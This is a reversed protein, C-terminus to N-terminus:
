QTLTRESKSKAIVDEASAGGSTTDIDTVDKIMRIVKAGTYYTHQLNGTLVIKTNTTVSAVAHCEQWGERGSIPAQLYVFASAGTTYSNGLATTMTIKGLEYDIDEITLNENASGDRVTVPDGTRFGGIQTPDVYIIKQASSANATLLAPYQDDVVLVYQGAVFGATAAIGIETQGAKAVANPLNAGIDFQVGALSGNTITVAETGVTDDAYTVDVALVWDVGGIGGTGVEIVGWCYDVDTSLNSGAVFDGGYLFTGLSVDTDPFLRAGDYATDAICYDCWSKPVRLYRDALLDEIGTSTADIARTNLFSVWDAFLNYLATCGQVKADCNAASVAGNITGTLDGPNDERTVMTYMDETQAVAAKIAKATATERDISGLLLTNSIDSM